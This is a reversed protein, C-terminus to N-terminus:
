PGGFRLNTCYGDIKVDDHGDDDFYKTKTWTRTRWPPTPGTPTVKRRKRLYPKHSRLSTISQCIKISSLCTKISSPAYSQTAHSLRNFPGPCQFIPDKHWRHAIATPCSWCMASPSSLHPALPRSPCRWCLGWCHGQSGQSTQYMCMAELYWVDSIIFWIKIRM